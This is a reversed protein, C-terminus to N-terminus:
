QCPIISSGVSVSDYLSYQSQDHHESGNVV